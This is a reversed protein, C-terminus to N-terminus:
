QFRWCMISGGTLQNLVTNNQNRFQVRIFNNGIAVNYSNGQEPTGIVPNASADFGSITYIYNNTPVGSPDLVQNTFNFSYHCRSATLRTANAYNFSSQVTINANGPTTDASPAPDLWNIAFVPYLRLFLEGDKTMQRINATGEGERRSYIETDTGDEKAYLVYENETSDPDTAQSVFTVKKHKGNDAAANFAVHDQSFITNLQDFNILLDGQSDSLFDGPQPISPNFSM